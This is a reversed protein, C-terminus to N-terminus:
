IIEKGKIFAEKIRDRDEIAQLQDDYYLSWLDTKIILGLKYKGMPDPIIEGNKDEDTADMVSLVGNVVNADILCEGYKTNLRFLKEKERDVKGYQGTMPNKIEIEEM